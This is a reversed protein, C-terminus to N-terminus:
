AHSLNNARTHVTQVVSINRLAFASECYALYYNWKRQFAPGFGLRDVAAAQRNFEARWAALTRAYDDGWDELGRLVFGGHRSLLQNLRNVSLLLSGPFIHKQIFDVGRRFQDYRDDPCSIFQLAMIGDRKLARSAVACWSDLYRHGVAELMEISVLKDYSEHRPLARYDQVRIEIERGLGAAQVRRRALDAQAPSLTLSTVRCGYHRAAHLSWGGWGTGIELVHDAAKLRLKRCLADNKAHQAEELTLDPKPWQAGSYMLTPDLWLQFFENSLDYHERINRTATGPSNPRLAHRLRNLLRLVNLQWAPGRGGSVTPAVDANLLFWAVVARVDPTEWDQDIYAEAFGVDGFLVCKRFFAANRVRIVATPPLARVGPACVEDPWSAGSWRGFCHRTGDSLELELRGRPLAAFAALVVRQYCSTARPPRLAPLSVSVPMTM